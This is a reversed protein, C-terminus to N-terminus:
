KLPGGPIVFSLHLECHRLTFQTWEERTLKGFLGHPELATASEFDDLAQRLEAMGRDEDVDDGPILKAAAKAPLRFGARM